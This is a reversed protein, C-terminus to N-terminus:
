KGRRFGRVTGTDLDEDDDSSQKIIRVVQKVGYTFCLFPSSTLNRMPGTGKQNKGKHIGTTPFPM